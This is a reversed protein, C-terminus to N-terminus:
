SRLDARGFYTIRANGLAQRGACVSVAILIIDYRQSSFTRRVLAQDGAEGGRTRYRAPLGSVKTGRTSRRGVYECRGGISLVQGVRASVPHEIRRRPVLVTVVASAESAKAPM